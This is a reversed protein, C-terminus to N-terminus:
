ELPGGLVSEAFARQEPYTAILDRPAPDFVFAVEQPDPTRGPDLRYVGLGGGQDRLMGSPWCDRRCGVIGLRWGLPEFYARCLALAAFVDPATRRVEGFPGSIEVWRTDYDVLGWSCTAQATRDGAWCERTQPSTRDSM